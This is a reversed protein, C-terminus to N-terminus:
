VIAIDACNRFTQAPNPDVGCASDGAFNIPILLTVM